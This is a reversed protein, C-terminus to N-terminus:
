YLNWSNWILFFNMKWLNLENRVDCAGCVLKFSMSWLIKIAYLILKIDIIHLNVIYKYNILTLILLKRYSVTHTFYTYHTTYTLTLLSILVKPLSNLQFVIKSRYHFSSYCFPTFLIHSPHFLFTENEKKLISFFLVKM